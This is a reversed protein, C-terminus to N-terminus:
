SFFDALVPSIYKVPCKFMPEVAGMSGTPLPTGGGGHGDDLVRAIARKIILRFVEAKNAQFVTLVHLFM